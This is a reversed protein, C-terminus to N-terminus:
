AGDGQRIRTPLGTPNPAVTETVILAVVAGPPPVATKLWVTPPAILLEM